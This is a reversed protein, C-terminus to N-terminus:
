DHCRLNVLIKLAAVTFYCHIIFCAGATGRRAGRSDLACPWVDAEIGVHVRNRAASCVPGQRYTICLLLKTRM